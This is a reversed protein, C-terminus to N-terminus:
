GEAAEAIVGLESVPLSRVKDKKCDSIFSVYAHHLREDFTNGPWCCSSGCLEVLASAACEPIITLDVVHLWDPMLGCIHWGPLTVFTQVGCVDTIFEATTLLTARHAASPGYQSYVMDEQSTARCWPCVHLSVPTHAAKYCRQLYKEDGKHAVLVGRWGEAVLGSRGKAFPPYAVGWPDVDLYHGLSLELLSWCLWLELTFATEDLARSNDLCWLVFRSDWSSRHPTLLSGM